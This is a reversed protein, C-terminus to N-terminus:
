YHLSFQDKLNNALQWGASCTGSFHCPPVPHVSGRIVFPQQNRYVWWAPTEEKPIAELRSAPVAGLLQCFRIFHFAAQPLCPRLELM